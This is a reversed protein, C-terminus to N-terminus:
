KTYVLRYVGGDSLELSSAGVMAMEEGVYIAWYAGNTNWDALIGDVTDIMLGYETMAGSAIKEDLLADALYARTTKIEHNTEEGKDDVVVVTIAIENGDEKKPGCAPLLLVSVIMLLTLALALIKKM